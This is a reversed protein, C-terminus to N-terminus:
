QPVNVVVMGRQPPCEPSVNWCVEAGHGFVEAGQHIDRAPASYGVLLTSLVLAIGLMTRRWTHSRRMQLSGGSM